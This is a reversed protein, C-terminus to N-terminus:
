FNVHLLVDVEVEGAPVLLAGPLLIVGCVVQFIRFVGAHQAHAGDVVVVLAV